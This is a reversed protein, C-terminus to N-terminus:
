GTPSIAFATLDWGVLPQGGPRCGFRLAVASLRHAFCLYPSFVPRTMSSRFVYLPPYSGLFPLLSKSGAFQRLSVPMSQSLTWSCPTRISPCCCDHAKHDRSRCPQQGTLAM